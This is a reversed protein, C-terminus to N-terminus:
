KRERHKIAGPITVKISAGNEGMWATICASLKSKHEILRKMIYRKARVVKPKIM